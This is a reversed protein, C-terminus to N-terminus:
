IYHNEYLENYLDKSAMVLESLQFWPFYIESPPQNSDPPGQVHIHVMHDSEQAQRLICIPLTFTLTAIRQTKM